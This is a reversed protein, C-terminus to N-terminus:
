VSGQQLVGVVRCGSFEGGVTSFRDKPEVMGAENRRHLLFIVCLGSPVHAGSNPEYPHGRPRYGVPVGLKVDNKSDLRELIQRIEVTRQAVDM